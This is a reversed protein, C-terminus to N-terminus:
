DLMQISNEMHPFAHFSLLINNMQSLKANVGAILSTSPSKLGCDEIAQSAATIALSGLSTEPEENWRRYVKAHGVGAYAVKGSHEWM